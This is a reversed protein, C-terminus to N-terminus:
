GNAKALPVIYCYTANCACDNRKEGEGRETISVIGYCLTPKITPAGDKDGSM